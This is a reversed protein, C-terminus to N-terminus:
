FSVKHDEPPMRVLIKIGLEESYLRNYSELTLENQLNNLLYSVLFLKTQYKPIKHFLKQHLISLHSM